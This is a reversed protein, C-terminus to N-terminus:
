RRPGLRVAVTARAHEGAPGTAVVSCELAADDLLRGVTGDVRLVDGAVAPAGLRMSTRPVAAGPGAWETVLRCVYGNTALINLLLHRAGAAQAREADHHAPEFDRAAVTTTIVVTPTLGVTIAGIPAGPELVAGAAPAGAAVATPPRRPPSPATPPPESPRFRLLTLRQRGVTEEGSRYTSRLTVFFGPGLATRKEGSVQELAIAESLREGHRLTRKHEHQLLTAVSGIYGGGALVDDLRPRPDGEVPPRAPWLPPMTWVPLMAPPM